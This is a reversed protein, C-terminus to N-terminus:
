FMAKGSRTSAAFRGGPADLAVILLELLLDPKSVEFAATPPAEVVVGGQADAAERNRIESRALIGGRLM